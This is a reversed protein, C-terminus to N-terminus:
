PPFGIRRLLDQYRPDSHLNDLHYDGKLGVLLDSHQEYAKGLWAFAQDKEGLLAYDGAISEAPVYAHKSRDLALEIRKRWYGQIGSALYARRLAAVKDASEGSLLMAKEFEAVAQEYSGKAEYAWGLQHHAEAYEPFMELTKRYQAIANDFQRSTLYHAGLHVNISQSLPDLELARKSQALSEEIRGVSLLYHSYMHHAEVYSPSLEIARQFEADAGPWEWDAMYKVQALSAHAAGLTSDIELAKMAAERAKQGAEKRPLDYYRYSDALAAYALAYKPDKAIAQQFDERAETIGGRTWKAASFRGRLYLEYAETNETGPKLRIQYPGLSM